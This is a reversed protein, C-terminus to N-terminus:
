SKITESVSHTHSRELSSKRHKKYSCLLPTGFLAKCTYDSLFSGMGLAYVDSQKSKLAGELLLEPAAWRTSAAQTSTTESFALSAESMVSLGFDTLKAVGEPSILVNLAKIDGHVKLTKYDCQEILSGRWTKIAIKSGNRLKGKRIDGFGGGSVLIAADQETDLASSLDACGHRILLSFMDNLSMHQGLPEWVEVELRQESELVANSGHKLDSGGLSIDWVKITEDYSSSAIRRGCPSFAVSNVTDTHQEFPEGVQRCMRIDWTRVTKDDSGSVVYFGSPSFAVSSVWRTHGEFLNGIMTGNRSDWLRLTHDDSGSIIQSGDPSIAVSRIGQTHGEIPGVITAGREIDWIRMTKDYSGSVIRTEDPTFVVSSVLYSHGKFPSIGLDMSRLDWLQISSEDSGSTLLNGSPSFAVSNIDVDLGRLPEALQRGTNPNWLRITSDWSGSAILDGLPSYSVSTVASTHGRLLGGIPSLNDVDWICITKDSSGSVVSKGDPSFTVSHIIGKHGENSLQGTDPKAPEPGPEPEPERRSFGNWLSLFSQM